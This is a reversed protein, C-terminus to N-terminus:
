SKGFLVRQAGSLVRTWCQILLNSDCFSQIAEAAVLFVNRGEVLLEREGANTEDRKGFALDVFKM